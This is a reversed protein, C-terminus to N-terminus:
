GDIVEVMEIIQKMQFIELCGNENIIYIHYPTINEITGVICKSYIRTHIYGGYDNIFKWPVYTIRVKKECSRLLKSEKTESEVVNEIPEIMEDNWCFGEVDIDIKYLDNVNVQRITAKEGKYKEMDTNFFLEGYVSNVELDDKVRVRDGVKYKM